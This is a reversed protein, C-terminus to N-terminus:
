MGYSETTKVAGPLNLFRSMSILDDHCREKWLAVAAISGVTIWVLGLALFVRVLFEISKFFNSIILTILPAAALLISVGYIGVIIEIAEGFSKAEPKQDSEYRRFECKSTQLNCNSVGLLGVRFEAQYTFIINVQTKVVTWPMFLAVLLLVLTMIMFIIMSGYERGVGSRTNVM